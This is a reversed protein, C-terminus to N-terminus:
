RMGDVTYSVQTTNSVGAGNSSSEDDGAGADDDGGDDGGEDGGNAAPTDGDNAPTDGGEEGCGAALVLTAIAFIAFFRTVLKM